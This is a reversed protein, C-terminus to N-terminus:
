PGREPTLGLMAAGVEDRGARAPMETVEGRAVVLLREALELVEDLDSSYVLVAVGQSVAQRLRDHVAAAAQVDLGRTPNEVVLLAPAAELGRALILKQQNGGSLMGALVDPSPARVDFEPLLEGTRHRAAPWDLWPGKQWADGLGLMLNETLTFGPILGETSRDEPVLVVPEDVRRSGASLPLLGALALMLERHGNGEVAAVGVLEGARIALSARRVGPGRGELPAVSAAALEAVVKSGPPSSRGPAAPARLMARGIMADALSAESQGAIPGHLTVRGHRLVTVEEAAALVEDLKHTILVVAGGQAAFLRIAGLLEDVEAPALVATPEDLLLVRAGTALAKVIELRQKQAVSLTEVLSGPDLGRWLQGLLGEERDIDPRGGALLVNEAVSLAPVSTFHQHVMGIGLARADRPSRIAVPVGDVLIEGADAAVMGYAIHMLTSKGAGNEGLLAHVRGPAVVFDAGRLAQVSGFRKSIGRLEVRSM